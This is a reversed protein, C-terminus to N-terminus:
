KTGEYLFSSFARPCTNSKTVNGILLLVGGHTNKVNKEFAGITGFRAFGSIYELIAIKLKVNIILKIKFCVGKFM